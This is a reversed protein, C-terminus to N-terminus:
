YIFQAINYDGCFKIAVHDRKCHDKWKRLIEGDTIAEGKEFIFKLNVITGIEPATCDNKQLIIQTGGGSIDIVQIEKDHYFARVNPLLDLRMRPWARLDCLEPDNLKQLIIRYDSTIEQIRAKFGLRGTNDAPAKYTM